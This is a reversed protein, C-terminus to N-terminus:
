AGPLAYPLTLTDLSSGSEDALHLPGADIDIVALAESHGASLAASVLVTGHHADDSGLLRAGPAPVHHAALRVRQVRRKVTGRFKVRAVIEQGPYCGKNFSVGALVDLNLEQPLFADTLAAPLMAEGRAIDTLRAANDGQAPVGLADWVSALVERPGVLWRRDGDIGLVLGAAGAPEAAGDLVLVGHSSSRDEITVKARLVFMRLRKIFAASQDQPLLAILTGNGTRLLRPMFLVRGKPSCWATLLTQDASLARIDASVQGHLFDIADEGTVEIVALASRTSKCPPTVSAGDDCVAEHGAFPNPTSM